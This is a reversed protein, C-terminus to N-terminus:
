TKKWEKSNKNKSKIVKEQAIESINKDLKLFNFIHSKLEKHRKSEKAGQYKLANIEDQNLKGATKIYCDDSDQHHKFFFERNQNGAITVTQNCIACVLSKTSKARNEALTRRLRFIEEEPRSLLQDAKYEEGTEFDRIDEILRNM